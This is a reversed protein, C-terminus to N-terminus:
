RKILKARIIEDMRNTTSCDQLNVANKKYKDELCNVDCIKRAPNGAWVSGSESISKVVVSGAGIVCNDAVEVGPLITTNMGIFCNNGIKIKGFVDTANDIYHSVSADHTILSVNNSITVDDGISILFGEGGSLDSFIHTNNGICIGCKRFYDNIVENNRGQLIYKIKAITYKIKSM